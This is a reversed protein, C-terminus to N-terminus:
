SLIASNTQLSHYFDRFVGTVIASPRTLFSIWSKGSNIHNSYTRGLDEQLEVRNQEGKRM